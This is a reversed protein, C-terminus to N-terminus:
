HLAPKIRHARLWHRFEAPRYGVKRAIEQDKKGDSDEIIFTPFTTIQKIKRLESDDDADIIELTYGATLEPHALTERKFEQCPACWEATYARLFREAFSNNSWLVVILFCVIRFTRM